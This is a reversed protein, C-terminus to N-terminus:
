PLEVRHDLIFQRQNTRSACTKPVVSGFDRDNNDALPMVGSEVWRLRILCVPKSVRSRPGNDIPTNGRNVVEVKVELCMRTQLSCSAWRVIIDDM